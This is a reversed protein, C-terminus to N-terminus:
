NSLLGVKANKRDFAVMLDIDSDPREEGRAFSGFVWARLVPQTALYNSIQQTIVSDM